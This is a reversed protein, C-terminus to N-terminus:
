HSKKSGKSQKEQTGTASGASSPDAVPAAQMAKESEESADSAAAGNGEIKAYSELNQKLVQVSDQLIEQLIEQQQKFRQSMEEGIKKFEENFSMGQSTQKEMMKLWQGDFWTLTNLSVLWADLMRRHADAILAMNKAMIEYFDFTQSLM